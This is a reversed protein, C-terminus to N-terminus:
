GIGQDSTNHLVGSLVVTTLSYLDIALVKGHYCVRMVSDLYLIKISPLSTSCGCPHLALCVLRCEEGTHFFSSEWCM